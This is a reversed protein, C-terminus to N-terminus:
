FVTVLAVRFVTADAEVDAPNYPNLQNDDFQTLEFKLATSAHFDWRTGVSYYKEDKEQGAMVFKTGGILADLGLGEAKDTISLNDVETENVGYTAFIVWEDLTFGGSVYWNTSKGIFTGTYDTSEWEFIAFGSEFDAKLATTIFNNRDDDIAIADGIGTFDIGTLALQPHKALAHWNKVINDDLEPFSISLVRTGAAARLTFIDKTLTLASIFFNDIEIPGAGDNAPDDASNGYLLHLSSDFGAMSFDYISGIGDYSDFASSYFGQPPSVWPYAYGVDVYDSFLKFPARQRGILLRWNDTPDYSIYAWEFQTKWDDSARSIIQATVGFGEGLNSSAQLALLSEPQFKIDEDYGYLVEDESSTVGAAITAFGNFEVKAHSNSAAALMVIALLGKTFKSM